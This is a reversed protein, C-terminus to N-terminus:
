STCLFIHLIYSIAWSTCLVFTFFSMFLDRRQCEGIAGVMQCITFAMMRFISLRGLMASALNLAPNLYGGSIPGTLHVAVFVALGFALSIKTQDPDLASGCGFFVIIFTGFSELFCDIFFRPWDSWLPIGLLLQLDFKSMSTQPAFRALFKLCWLKVSM